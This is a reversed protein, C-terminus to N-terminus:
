ALADSESDDEKMDEEMSKFKCWSSYRREKYELVEEKWFESISPNGRVFSREERKRERYGKLRAACGECWVHRCEDCHCLSEDRKERERKSV